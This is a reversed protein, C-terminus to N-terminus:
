DSALVLDVARITVPCDDPACNDSGMALLMVTVANVADPNITPLSNIIEQRLNIDISHWEDGLWRRSVNNGVSPLPEVGFLASNRQPGTAWISYGLPVRDADHYVLMLAGVGEASTADDISGVLHLEARFHLSAPNVTVTQTLQLADPGSREIQLGRGTSSQELEVVETRQPGSANPGIARQWGVDWNQEFNGNTLLNPMPEPDVPADEPAEQPTPIPTDEMVPETPEPIPTPLTDATEAEEVDEIETETQPTADAVMTDEEGFPWLVITVAAIILLLVVGIAAWLWRNSRPPTV